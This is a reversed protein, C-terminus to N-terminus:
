KRAIFKVFNDRVIFRSHKWNHKMLLDYWEYPKLISIHANRGDPLVAKARVTAILYYVGKEAADHIQDLVEGIYEEEVHEMVDVCCVMDFKSAPLNEYEPICPDYGAYDFGAAKLPSKLVQHGCGYDLISKAGMERAAEIIEEGWRDATSGWNKRKQRYSQLLTRYTDSIPASM